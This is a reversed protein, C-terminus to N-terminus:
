QQYRWSTGEKSDELVVGLASLRDRVLDSMAWLKQKRLEARVELLLDIFPAAAQPKDDETVLRLGLVGALERLAAQSAKLEDDTAGDARAQNIARVLEFLNSLGGSTNFDDDMAEEFGSRTTATVQALTQVTAEGVGRAGPLAPRLASK